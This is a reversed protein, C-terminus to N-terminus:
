PRPQDDGDDEPQAAPGFEDSDLPSTGEPEVEAATAAGEGDLAEAPRLLRAAASIALTIGVVAIAAPWLRVPHVDGVRTGGFLFTAGVTVFLAGFVFSFPDFRHRRM